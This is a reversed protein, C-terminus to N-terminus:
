SRKVREGGRSRRKVRLEWAAREAPDEIKEEADAVSAWGQGQPSPISGFVYYRYRSFTRSMHVSGASTRSETM